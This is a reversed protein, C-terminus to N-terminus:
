GTQCPVTTENFQSAFFDTLVKITVPKLLFSDFGQERYTARAEVDATIACVKLHALHEDARIHRVLEAGDMVPMWMDTMVLDFAPEGSLRELAMKGDEALAVDTVGLKKLMAKLVTRNVPSDDVVLIRRPLRSADITATTGSKSSAQEETAVEVPVEVHIAFGKGLATEITFTGHALEVLRKCISLGLGCGEARNKIDAQVFPQMLLKAKEPSVGKGNDAVTLKFRGDEYSSTIRITCPGAYKAANSICNFMLQRFRFPDIMLRPMAAIELVFTQGKKVMTPQFVPVIERILEGTDAPELTFELKGLDMRSLELVENVLQLLMKGNSVIINLHQKATEPPVDGAQLLESFGIVANLPTRIDHSVASFFYSRAKEAELVRDHEDKLRVAAAHRELAMTLVNAAIKLTERDNESIRHQRNIYHLAIGGWPKGECYVVIVELSKAPCDASLPVLAQGKADVLEIIHDADELPPIKFKYFSCEKCREPCNELEGGPYLLRHDGDLTHIAIYDCATLELLRHLAFDILGPLDDRSLAYALADARFRQHNQMQSITKERRDGDYAITLFELATRLGRAVMDMNRRHPHTYSAIMRWWGDGNRFQAVASSSMPCYPPRNVEPLPDGERFIVTERGALFDQPLQNGECTSAKVCDHCCEPADAGFWDSRSGDDSRLMLHQAGTIACLKPGLFDRFDAYDQHKFLFEVVEAKLNAVNLAVSLEHYTSIRELASVIVFASRRLFGIQHSTLPHDDAFCVCLIGVLKGEQIIGTSHLTKGTLNSLSDEAEVNEELWAIEGERLTVVSSTLLRTGLARVAKPSIALDRTNTRGDRTLAHGALITGGGEQRIDRVIYCLDADLSKRVIELTQAPHMTHIDGLLTTLAEEFDLDYKQHEDEQQPINRRAMGQAHLRQCNLLLNAAQHINFIIRDTFEKCPAKVFDFGAFGYITSNAGVLPTAILSQIGQPALWERSGADVTNIDTFFFDRGSTIHANFEALVALNCTQQGGIEPKIGEACWEHTNTCMSSKGPDWFRYVYCRDAGVSRGMSELVFDSPDENPAAQVIHELLSSFLKRDDRIYGDITDKNEKMEM